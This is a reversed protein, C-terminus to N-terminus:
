LNKSEKAGGFRPAVKVLTAILNPHAICDFFRLFYRIHLTCPPGYTDSRNQSVIKLDSPSKFFLIEIGTFFEHLYRKFDIFYIKKVDLM